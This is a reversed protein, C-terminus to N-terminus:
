LKKWRDFTDQVITVMQNHDDATLPRGIHDKLAKDMQSELFEVHRLYDLCEFCTVPPDGPQEEKSWAGCLAFHGDSCRVAPAMVAHVLGDETRTKPRTRM